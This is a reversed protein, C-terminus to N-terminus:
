YDDSYTRALQAASKDAESMYEWDRAWEEKGQEKLFQLGAGASEVGGNKAAQLFQSIANKVAEPAAAAMGKPSPDQSWAESEGRGNKVQTARNKLYKERQSDPVQYADLVAKVAPNKAAKKAGHAAAVRGLYAHIGDRMDAREREARLLPAKQNEPAKSFVDTKKKLELFEKEKAQLEDHLFDNDTQLRATEANAAKERQSALDAKKEAEERAAREDAVQVGVHALRILEDASAASIQYGKIKNSLIGDKITNEPAKMSKEIAAINEHESGSLEFREKKAELENIEERLTETKLEDLSRGSKGRERPVEELDIGNEKCLQQFHERCMRTYTMKANNYRSEPKSLNPREIGMEQLAKRESPILNGDKDHALWVRRAQCHPAAKPEDVHIAYSLYKVQPFQKQEWALQKMLIKDLRDPDVTEKRTGLQLITEEPASKKDRYFNEMSRVREYHRQEIYRGNKAALGKTFNKKYFDLEAQEFNQDAAGISRYINEDSKEKDIHDAANMKEARDNHGARFVGSKGARGNHMTARIKSM